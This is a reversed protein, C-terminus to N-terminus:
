HDASNEENDEERKSFRHNCRACRFDILGVGLSKKEVENHGFQACYSRIALNTFKLAYEIADPENNAIAGSLLALYTAEHFTLNNSM